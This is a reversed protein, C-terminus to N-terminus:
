WPLRWWEPSVSENTERYTTYGQCTKANTTESTKHQELNGNGLVVLGPRKCWGCISM